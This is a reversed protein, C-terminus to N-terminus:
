RQLKYPYIETVHFLFSMENYDIDNFFKAKVFGDDYVHTIIVHKEPNTLNITVKQDVKLNKRFGWLSLEKILFPLFSFVLIGLIFIGLALM